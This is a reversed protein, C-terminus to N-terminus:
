VKFRKISDRLEKSETTLIEASYTVQETLALQEEATTKALHAVSELSANIEQMSATMGESITSLEQIGTNAVEIASVIEYFTGGTNKVVTIGNEIEQHTHEMLQAVKATYQQIAEVITSIHQASKTSQESLKRVEGAVVAFGKGHEGARASEIAANLALLNTQNSIDTIAGVIKGIEVSREKLNSIVTNTEVNSDYIASM